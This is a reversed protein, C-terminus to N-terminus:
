WKRGVYVAIRIPKREADNNDKAMNVITVVEQITLDDRGEYNLFKQNFNSVEPRDLATYIEQADGTMQQYIYVFFTLVLIGILVGGAILLAKSANEM